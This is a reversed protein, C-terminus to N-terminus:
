GLKLTDRDGLVRVMKVPEEPVETAVRVLRFPNAPCTVTEAKFMGNFTPTPMPGDWTLRVGPPVEVECIKTFTALLATGPVFEMMIEPVAGNAPPNKVSVAMKVSVIDCDITGSKLITAIGFERVIRRPEIPSTLTVRELRPPKLPFTEIVPEIVGVTKPRGVTMREGDETVSRERPVATDTNCIRVFLVM